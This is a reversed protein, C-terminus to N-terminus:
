GTKDHLYIAMRADGHLARKYMARELTDKRQDDDRYSTIVLENVLDMQRRAENIRIEILKTQNKSVAYRTIEGTEDDPMEIGGTISASTLINQWNAYCNEVLRLAYQPDRQVFESVTLNENRAIEFISDFQPLTNFDKKIKVTLNDDSTPKQLMKRIGASFSEGKSISLQQEQTDKVEAFQAWDDIDQAIVVEQKSDEM